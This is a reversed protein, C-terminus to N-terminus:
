LSICVLLANLPLWNTHRKTHFSKWNLKMFAVHDCKNSCFKTCFNIFGVSLDFARLEHEGSQSAGLPQSFLCMEVASDHLICLSRHTHIISSYPSTFTIPKNPLSVVHVAVICCSKCWAMITQCAMRLLTSCANSGSAFDHWVWYMCVTKTHFGWVELSWAKKFLGNHALSVCHRRIGANCGSVTLRAARSVHM